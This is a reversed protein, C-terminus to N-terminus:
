AGTEAVIKGIARPVTHPRQIPNAGKESFGIKRMWEQMLRGALEMADYRNYYKTNFWVRLSNTYTFSSVNRWSTYLHVRLDMANDKTPRLTEAGDLIAQYVQANTLNKANVFGPYSLVKQRFEDTAVVRKIHDMAAAFKVAQASNFGNTAVDSKFTAAEPPLNGTPNGPETPATPDTPSPTTSDTPATPDAPATPDSPNAAPVTAEVKSTKEDSGSGSSGSCAGLSVLMLAMALKKVERM